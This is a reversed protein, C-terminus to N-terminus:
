KALVLEARSRVADRCAECADEDALVVGALQGKFMIGDPHAELVATRDPGAPYRFLVAYVRVRPGGPECEYVAAYASRVPEAAAREGVALPAIAAVVDDDSTAVPNTAAAVNDDGLRDAPVLGCGSQEGPPLTLSALVDVGGPCCGALLSSCLAFLLAGRLVPVSVHPAVSRAAPVSAM